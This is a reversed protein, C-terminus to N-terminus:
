NEYEVGDKNNFYDYVNQATKADIGKVARLEDLTAAQISTVTKFSELLLQKRRDGVGVINDLESKSASKNRLKRHYEIATKHVEDQVRTIFKFVGSVPSLEIERGDPALLGRTKHKSNKVMGFIPIDIEMQEMIEAASSLQGKGGDLLILDPLPLFSAQAMGMEGADIKQQEELAHRFRRYLVEKMAAFDDAVSYRIKFRRYLSPKPKGDAFVVMAAVNDSGSIHSMDYSEIRQPEKDLGTAEALMALVTNREQKKLQAIKYNDLAINANKVVMEMLHKKEGIKPTIVETKKGRKETLWASLLEPNTVEHRTLVVPPIYAALSYFQEVFATIIESDSLGDINDLPYSERGIISGSRVFFVAAFAKSGMAAFAIVDMDTQNDSNIIKQREAIAKISKIKDRLQAAREFDLQASADKMQATLAQILKSQSGDLFACIDEYIHRYEECSVKGTCPAFCNDIHYNLCPRGKGIDQPFKRSCQPPKFVKQVMEITDKITTSGMYPGFYKAGDNELRRTMFIRPYMENMTVKIYPYQKDDKLLINYKPRYKKILNCELVLAEIESDTVIYEFYAINSVMARVKPTHNSSSHFYQRVRNKLIKAKGVYIVTDDCGHMIYVGPEDPLNKLEQQLDFM